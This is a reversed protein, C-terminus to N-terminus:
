QQSDRERFVAELRALLEDARPNLEAAQRVTIGNQGNLRGALEPDHQAFIASVQAYARADDVLEDLSSDVTLARHNGRSDVYPYSWHYTGSGVQFAQTPQGPLFVSATTNAPVEVEVTIAGADIHWSCGAM